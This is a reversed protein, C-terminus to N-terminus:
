IVSRGQADIGVWLPMKDVLLKRVAETGLEPYALIQQSLISQAYLVGCGGLALAYIARNKQLSQQVQFSRQGKGILLKVGNDLLSPTFKDMRSSTTPGCSVIKEDNLIPGAYFIASDKLPFPLPKGEQLLKCLRSHAADRALYIEGSYYFFDGAKLEQLDKIKM